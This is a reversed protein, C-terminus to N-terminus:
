VRDLWALFHGWFDAEVLMMWLEKAKKVLMNLVGLIQPRFNEVVLNPLFKMKEFLANMIVLIQDLFVGIVLWLEKAKEVVLNPLFTLIKMIQDWFSEMFLWLERGKQVM